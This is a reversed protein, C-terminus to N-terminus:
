PMLAVPCTTPLEPGSPAVTTGEEEAAPHHFTQASEAAGRTTGDADIVGPLHYTGRLVGAANTASKEVGAGGPHLVEACEATELCPALGISDVSGPQHHAVRVRVVLGTSM